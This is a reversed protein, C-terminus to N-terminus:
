VGAPTRKGQAGPQPLQPLREMRDFCSQLRRSEVNLALFPGRRRHETAKPDGAEPGSTTAHEHSNFIKPYVRVMTERLSEQCAARWPSPSGSPVILLSARRAKRGADGLTSVGDGDPGTHDHAARVIRLRQVVHLALQSWLLQM